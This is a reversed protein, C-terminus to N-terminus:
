FKAVVYLPWPSAHWLFSQEGYLISLPVSVHDTKTQTYSKENTILKREKTRRKKKKAYKRETLM